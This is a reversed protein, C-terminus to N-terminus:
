AAHTYVGGRCIVMHVRESRDLRPSFGKTMAIQHLLKRNFIGTNGTSSLESSCTFGTRATVSGHQFVQLMVFRLVGGWCVCRM